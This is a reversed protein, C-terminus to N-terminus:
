DNRIAEPVDRQYDPGHRLRSVLTLPPLRKIVTLVKYTKSARIHNLREVPDAQGATDPGRLALRRATQLLKWSASSEIFGVARAAAAREHDVRRRDEAEADLVRQRYPWLYECLDRTRIWDIGAVALEQALEPAVTARPRTRKHHAALDFLELLRRRTEELPHNTVVHRRAAAGIEARRQPNRVLDALVGAYRDAEAAKDDLLPLLYGTGDVVLEAQGGVVAGVVPKGSAMAEYLSLAIGEQMSPLFLIDAANYMGPMKAIPVPGLLRIHDHLRHERIFREVAPRDEGDGAVLAVFRVETGRLRDRLRRISDAFVRPQKQATLRVPYLLAVTDDDLELEERM